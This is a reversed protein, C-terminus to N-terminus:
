EPFAERFADMVYDGYTERITEREARITPHVVYGPGSTPGDANWQNGRWPLFQRYRKSGFEQGFADPYRSANLRIAARRQTGSASITRGRALRVRGSGLAAARTRAKAQVEM